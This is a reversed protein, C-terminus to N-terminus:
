LESGTAGGPTRTATAPSLRHAQALLLRALPGRGAAATVSVGGFGFESLLTTLSRRDYLHLHDGLPPSYAGIGHRALALRSHNPTTLLLSAGPALVRRVESLWRGTDAVHEIV